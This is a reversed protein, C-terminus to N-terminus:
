KEKKLLDVIEKLLNEINELRKEMQVHHDQMPRRFHRPPMTERGGFPQARTGRRPGYYPPANSPGSWPGFGSPPVAGGQPGQKLMDERMKQQQQQMEEVFRQREEPTASKSKERLKRVEERLAKQREMMEQKFAKQREMMEQYSMAAPKPPEPPTMNVPPKVDAFPAPPAPPAPPMIAAPPATQPGTEPAPAENAALAYGSLAFSILTPLVYKKM